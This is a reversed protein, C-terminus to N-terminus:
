QNGEGGNGERRTGTGGGGSKAKKWKQDKKGKKKTPNKRLRGKEIFFNPAQYSKRKGRIRMVPLSKQQRKKEGSSNVEGTTEGDGKGRKWFRKAGLQEGPSMKKGVSYRRKNLAGGKGFGGSNREGYEGKKKEKRKIIGKELFRNGFGEGARSTNGGM